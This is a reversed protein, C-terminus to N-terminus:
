RFKPTITIKIGGIFAHQPSGGSGSRTLNSIGYQIMPGVTFLTKKEFFGLMLATQWNFQTKNYFNDSKYYIGSLDSYQLADTALLRSVSIGAEWYVPLTNSRNLQLRVNVPLELFHFHNTYNQSNGSLYYASASAFVSNNVSVSLNSNVKGGTELHTTIFYYNLGASVSIRRGFLRQAFGGASFSFGPKITSNLGAYYTPGVSRGNVTIASLYSTSAAAPIAANATTSHFLGRQFTSVGPSVQLGYKWKGATSALQPKKQNQEKNATKYIPPEMDVKSLISDKRTKSIGDETPVVGPKGTESGSTKAL